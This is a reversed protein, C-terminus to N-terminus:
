VLSQKLAPLCDHVLRVHIYLVQLNILSETFKMNFDNCPICGYASRNPSIVPSASAPTLYDTAVSPYDDGRFVSCQVRSIRFVRM